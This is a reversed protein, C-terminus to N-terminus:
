FIEQPKECPRGALCLKQCIFCTCTASNRTLKECKLISVTVDYLLEPPPDSASTNELTHLSFVSM